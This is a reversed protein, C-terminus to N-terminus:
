FDRCPWPSRSGEFRERTREVPQFAQLGAAPIGNELSLLPVKCPKPGNICNRGELGCFRASYVVGHHLPLVVTEPVTLQPELGQPTIQNFDTVSLTSWPATWLATTKKNSIIATPKNV